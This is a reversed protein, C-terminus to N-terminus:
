SANFFVSSIETRIRKRTAADFKKPATKERSPVGVMIVSSSSEQSSEAAITTM